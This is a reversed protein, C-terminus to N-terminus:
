ANAADELDVSASEARARRRGEERAKNAEQRKIEADVQDQKWDDHKQRAGELTGARFPISDGWHMKGDKDRTGIERRVLFQNLPEGTSTVRQWYTIRVPDSM